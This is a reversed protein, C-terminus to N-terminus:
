STYNIVPSSRNHWLNEMKYGATMFNPKCSYRDPVTDPIWTLSYDVINIFKNAQKPTRSIIYDHSFFDDIM